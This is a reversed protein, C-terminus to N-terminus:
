GCIAVTLLEPARRRRSLGCVAKATQKVSGRIICFIPKQTAGHLAFLQPKQSAKVVQSGRKGGRPSPLPAKTHILNRTGKRARHEEASQKGGAKVREKLITKPPQTLPPKGNM